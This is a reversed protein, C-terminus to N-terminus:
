WFINFIWIVVLCIASLLKVVLILARPSLEVSSNICWVPTLPKASPNRGDWGGSRWHFISSCNRLMSRCTCTLSTPQTFYDTMLSCCNDGVYGEWEGLSQPGHHRFRPLIWAILIESVGKVWQYNCLVHLYGFVYICHEMDSIDHLKVVRQQWWNCYTQGLM